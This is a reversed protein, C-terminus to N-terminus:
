NNTNEPSYDTILDEPKVAVFSSIGNLVRSMTEADIRPMRFRTSTIKDDVAVGRGNLTPLTDKVGKYLSELLLTYVANGRDGSGYMENLKEQFAELTGLLIDSDEPSYSGDKARDQVLKRYTPNVGQAMQDQMLGFLSFGEGSQVQNEALPRITFDIDVSGASLTPVPTEVVPTATATLSAERATPTATIWPVTATAEASSITSTAESTPIPTPIAVTEGQGCNKVVSLLAVLSILAAAVALPKLCGPRQAEKEIRRVEEPRISTKPNLLESLTRRLVDSERRQKKIARIDEPDLYDKLRRNISAIYEALPNIGTRAAIKKGRILVDSELGDPASEPTVLSDRLKEAWSLSEAASPDNAARAKLGTIMTNVAVLYEQDTSSPTVTGRGHVPIRLRDIFDKWASGHKAPTDDVPQHKISAKHAAEQEDTRRLSSDFYSLPKWDSTPGAFVTPILGDKTPIILERRRKLREIARQRKKEEKEGALFPDNNIFSLETNIRGAEIPNDPNLADPHLEAYPRSSRKLVRLNGQFAILDKKDWSSVYKGKEKIKQQLRDIESQVYDMLDEVALGELRVIDKGTESNHIRIPVASHRPRYIGKDYPNETLAVLGHHFTEWKSFQERNSSVDPHTALSTIRAQPNLDRRMSDIARYYWAWAIDNVAHIVEERAPLRELLPSRFEVGRTM